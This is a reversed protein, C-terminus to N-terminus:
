PQKQVAAGSDGTKLGMEYTLARDTSTQVVGPAATQSHGRLLQATGLKGPIVAPEAAAVIQLM